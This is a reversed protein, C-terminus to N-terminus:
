EVGVTPPVNLRRASVVDGDKWSKPGGSRWYVTVDTSRFPFSLVFLLTTVIVESRVRGFGSLRNEVDSLPATSSSQVSLAYRLLGAANLHYRTYEALAGDSVRHLLSQTSSPAVTDGSKM